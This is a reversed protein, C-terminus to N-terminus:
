YACLFEWQVASHGSVDASLWGGVQQCWGGVPGDVTPLQDYNRPLSHQHPLGTRVDGAAAARQRPLRLYSWTASPLVLCSGAHVTPGSPGAQGLPSLHVALRLHGGEGMEQRRQWPRSGSIRVCRPLSRMSLPLPPPLNCGLLPRQMPKVYRWRRLVDPNYRFKQLGFHIDSHPGFTVDGRCLATLGQAGGRLVSM